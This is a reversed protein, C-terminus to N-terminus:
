SGEDLQGESLRQLRKRVWRAQGQFDLCEYTHRLRRYRRVPDFGISWYLKRLDVPCLHIPRRDSEQLHNSGNMGCQVFTCHRMGFMHGIEHAMVKMSRELLLKPHDDGYRAFSYVGVRDRYSAQGFVFNWNPDPYLDIMTMGIMCFADDPLHDRVLELLDRTWLQRQEGGPAERETIAHEDLSVPSHLGVSMAFYAEAFAQLAQFSPVDQSDLPHLPVIYITDRTESPANPSSDIFREFSQGSGEHEALWEGPQPDPLSEFDDDIQFLPRLPPPLEDLRGRADRTSHVSSRRTTM